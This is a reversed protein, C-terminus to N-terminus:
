VSPAASPNQLRQGSPAPPRNARREAAFYAMCHDPNFPDEKAHTLIVTPEFDRHGQAGSWRRGTWNWRTPGLEM